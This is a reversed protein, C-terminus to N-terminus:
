NRLQTLFLTCSEQDDFFIAYPYSETIGASMPSVLLVIPGMQGFEWKRNSADLSKLYRATKHTPWPSCSDLANFMLRKNASQLSPGFGILFLSIIYKM